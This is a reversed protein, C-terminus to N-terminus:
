SHQHSKSVRRRRLGKYNEFRSSMVVTAPLLFQDLLRRQNQLRMWSAIMLSLSRALLALCALRVLASFLEPGFVSAPFDLTERFARVCPSEMGIPRRGFELVAM